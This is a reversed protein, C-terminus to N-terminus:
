VYDFQFIENGTHRDVYIFKKGLHFRILKQDASQNDTGDYKPEIIFEGTKNIIGYQDGVVVYATGEYFESAYDFLLPIVIDGMKNIYGWKGNIAVSCLGESFDDASDFLPPIVIDGSTNIFCKKGTTYYRAPALGEAFRVGANFLTSSIVLEGAKNIYGNRKTKKDRFFALGHSFNGVEVNTFQLQVNGEADLYQIVDEITKVWAWGESFHRVQQYVPPIIVKDWKDIFGWGSGCKIPSFGENFGGVVDYKLPINGNDMSIFGQKGNKKVRYFAESGYFAGDFQPSVVVNGRMDIYGWIRNEHIPFM